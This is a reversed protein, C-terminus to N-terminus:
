RQAPSLNARFNEGTGKVKIKEIKCNQLKLNKAMFSRLRCKRFCGITTKANTNAPFSDKLRFSFAFFLFILTNKQHAMPSSGAPLPTLAVVQQSFRNFL